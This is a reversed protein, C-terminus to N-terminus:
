LMSFGIYIDCQSKQQNIRKENIVLFLLMPYGFENGEKKASLAAESPEV